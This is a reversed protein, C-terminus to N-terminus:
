GKQRPIGRKVARFGGYGAAGVIGTIAFTVWMSLLGDNEGDIQNVAVVFSALATNGDKDTARCLVNVKGVPFTSGSSPSCYAAIEGDQDDVATVSFTVTAGSESTADVVLPSEPLNLKPAQADTKGQEAIPAQAEDTVTVSGGVPVDTSTENASGTATPPIADDQLEDNAGAPSPADEDDGGTSPSTPDKPNTVATVSISFTAISSDTIGDSVKFTFEDSGHYNTFPEYELEPPTGGLVGHDPKSTIIYTLPDGDVDSGAISFSISQDQLTRIGESTAVPADNVPVIKISVQATNSGGEEDAVSIAFSDEGNYDLGPSYSVEASYRDTSTIERLDGHKPGSQLSFSVKHSDSDDATLAIAISTDESTEVTVDDLKPADNVPVVSISVTATNSEARGDNVTFTFKDKGTFDSDPSYVVTGTSPNVQALLGFEPESVIAFSISDGDPDSGQLKIEAPEDENVTVSQSVARPETNRVVVTFTATASSVPVAISGTAEVTTKGSAADTPVEFRATFRGLANPEVTEPVTSVPEGDFTITVNS